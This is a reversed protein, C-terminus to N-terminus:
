LDLNPPLILHDPVLSKWKSLSKANPIDEKSVLSGLKLNGLLVYLDGQEGEHGLDYSCFLQPEM